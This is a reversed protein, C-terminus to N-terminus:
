KQFLQLIQFQRRSCIIPQAELTLTVIMVQYLVIKTADNKKCFYSKVKWTFKSSEISESSSDFLIAKKVRQIHTVGLCTSKCVTFYWIFYQVISCKM